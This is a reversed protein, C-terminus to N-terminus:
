SFKGRKFSLFGFVGGWAGGAFLFCPLPHSDLSSPGDHRRRREDEDEDHTDGDHAAIGYSAM